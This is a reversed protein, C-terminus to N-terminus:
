TKEKKEEYEVQTIENFGITDGVNSMRSIVPVQRRLSWKGEQINRPMETGVSNIHM